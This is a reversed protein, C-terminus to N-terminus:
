NWFNFRGVLGRRHKKSAACPGCQNSEHEELIIRANHAPVCVEERKNENKQVCV